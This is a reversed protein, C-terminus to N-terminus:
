QNGGELVQFGPDYIETGTMIWISGNTDHTSNKIYLYNVLASYKLRSSLLM